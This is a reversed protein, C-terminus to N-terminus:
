FGPPVIGRTTFETRVRMAEGSAKMWETITAAVSRAVGLEGSVRHHRVADVAAATLSRWQAPAMPYGRQTLLNYFGCMQQLMVREDAPLQHQGVYIVPLEELPHQVQKEIAKRSAEQDLEPGRILRYIMAVGHHIAMLFLALSILVITVGIADPYFSASAGYFAGTWFLLFALGLSVGAKKGRAAANKIKLPLAGPEHRAAELLEAPSTAVGASRGTLLSAPSRTLAHSHFDYGALVTTVAPFSLEAAAAPQGDPRRFSDQKGSPSPMFSM